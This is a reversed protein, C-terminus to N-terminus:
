SDNWVPPTQPLNLDAASNFLLSRRSLCCDPWGKTWHFVPLTHTLTHTKVYSPQVATCEWIPWHKGGAARQVTMIRGTEESWCPSSQLTMGHQGYSRIWQWMSWNPHLSTQGKLSFCCKKKNLELLGGTAAPLATHHVRWQLWLTQPSVNITKRWYTNEEETTQLQQKNLRGRGM